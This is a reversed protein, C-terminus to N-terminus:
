AKARRLPIGILVWAIVGLAVLSLGGGLPQSVFDFERVGFLLGTLSRPEAKIAELALVMGALFVGTLAEGAIFGSALLTGTNETQEKAAGEPSRRRALLNVIAKIVGGLFIAATTEFPLYMGVAILMPSPSQILILALSLFMGFLILGWPMEGGVIGQALQAMLGAQPAPLEKGGLGIGGAALDGKHLLIIPGVLVFSIVLTSIVEAVEMKWPTGGLLHGVKLDQLMDGAVACSCCVVGAVGLVAIVGPAGTVGMSVMLLAAIVLTTITLGSVPQNSSGILGVLYGGVASLLFGMVMMVVAAVAAGVVSGSFQYYLLTMPITLGLTVLVIIKLNLDKELRNTTAVESGKHFAGQVASRIYGRLGWLTNVAGVLMAGVAIPRIQNYWISFIIDSEAAARGQSSLQDALQPSLFLALPIFVLWALVGGSFVIASLKPGVIYGVGILAPSIAPTSFAIAGSHSISGLPRRGQAFHHVVSQPLRILVGVSERFVQLGASHKLIQLVMGLGMAGFVYKAGTEGEQGAKVIEACATSEPFPLKADVVLARRLLIIFMVGLGGGILLILSSEWYHFNEWLPKGDVQAMVFAPLTFIAGAVLAEGVSATTRAINQELVTGRFFPLRFAAMAIVAAPFTAAVTMGAKLGLYANAAGLVAAMVLGLLLAKLTLERMSSEAGVYPKDPLNAAM